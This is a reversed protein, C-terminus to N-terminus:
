AADNAPCQSPWCWSACLPSAVFARLETAFDEYRWSSDDDDMIAIHEDADFVIARLSIRGFTFRVSYYGAGATGNRHYKASKFSVQAM